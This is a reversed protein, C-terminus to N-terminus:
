TLLAGGSRWIEMCGHERTQVGAARRSVEISWTQVGAARRWFEMGGYRWVEVHAHRCRVELPGERWVEVDNRTYFAELGGSRWADLFRTWMRLLFSVFALIVFVASAAVTNEQQRAHHNFSTSYQVVPRVTLFKRVHKM